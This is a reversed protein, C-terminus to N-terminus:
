SSVQSRLVEINSTLMETSGWIPIGNVPPYVHPPPDEMEEGFMVYREVRIKVHDCSMPGVEPFRGIAEVVGEAYCADPGEVEKNMVPPNGFDFSRVYDGVSVTVIEDNTSADRM